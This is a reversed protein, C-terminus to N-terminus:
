LPRARQQGEQGNWQYRYWKQEIVLTLVNPQLARKCPFVKILILVHRMLTSDRFVERDRYCGACNGNPFVANFSPLSDITRGPMYLTEDSEHRAHLSVNAEIDRPAVCPPLKIISPSQVLNGFLGGASSLPLDGSRM